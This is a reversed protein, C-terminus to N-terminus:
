RPNNVVDFVFRGILSDGTNDIFFLVAFLTCVAATLTINGSSGQLWRRAATLTLLGAVIFLPPLLLCKMAWGFAVQNLGRTLLWDAIDLSVHNIMTIGWTIASVGVTCLIATPIWRKLRGRNDSRKFDRFMNLSWIALWWLAAVIASQVIFNAALKYWDTVRAPPPYDKPWGRSDLEPKPRSDFDFFTIGDNLHVFPWGRKVVYTTGEPPGHKYLPAGRQTVRPPWFNIALIIAAVSTVILISRLSFQPRYWPRTSEGSKIAKSQLPTGKM